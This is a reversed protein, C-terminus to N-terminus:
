EGNGVVKEDEDDLFSAPIASVITVPGNAKIAFSNQVLGPVQKGLIKAFEGYNKDAWLALRPVGGVIEFAEALAQMYRDRSSGNRPVRNINKAVKAQDSLFDDLQDSYELVRDSFDPEKPILEKM